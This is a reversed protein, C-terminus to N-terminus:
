PAINKDILVSRLGEINQILESPLTRRGPKLEDWVKLFRILFIKATDLDQVLDSIIQPSSAIFQADKRYNPCNSGQMHAIWDIIAGEMKVAVTDPHGVIRSDLGATEWPWPSIEALMKKIEELTHKM